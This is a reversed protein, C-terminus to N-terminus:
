APDAVAADLARDYDAELQDIQAQLRNSRARDHRRQAEIKQVKLSRLRDQM